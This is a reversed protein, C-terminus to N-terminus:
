YSISDDTNSHTPPRLQASSAASRGDREEEEEEESAQVESLYIGNM